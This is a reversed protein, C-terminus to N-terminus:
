DYNEELISRGRGEVYQRSPKLSCLLRIEGVVTDRAPIYEVGDWEMGVWGGNM